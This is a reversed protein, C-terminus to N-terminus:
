RSYIADTQSLEMLVVMLDSPIPMGDYAGHCSQIETQSILNSEALPFLVSLGRQNPPEANEVAPPILTSPYELSSHYPSFEGCVGWGTWKTWLGILWSKFGYLRVWSLFFSLSSLFSEVLPMLPSLRQQQRKTVAATSRCFPLTCKSEHRTQVANVVVADLLFVVVITQIQELALPKVHYPLNSIAPSIYRKQANSLFSFSIVEIISSHPQILV